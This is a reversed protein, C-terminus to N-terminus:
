EAVKGGRVENLARYAEEMAIQNLRTPNGIGKGWTKNDPMSYLPPAFSGPTPISPERAALYLKAAADYYPIPEPNDEAPIMLKEVGRLDEDTLHYKDKVRKRDAELRGRAEDERIKAELKQREKKEEDLAARMRDEGDIEPISLAPNKKKLYRQFMNRAEPDRAIQQVLNFSPEYHQARSALERLQELSLEELSAM